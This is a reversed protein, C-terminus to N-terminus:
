RSWVKDGCISCPTYGKAKGLPITYVTRKLSSCDAKGHYRSGDESLFVAGGDKPHCRECPDYKGGASNRIGKVEESSIMRVPVRLYTCDWSLHYKKGTRTVYVCVEELPQQAIQENGSFGIWAHSYFEDELLVKGIPIWHVFPKLGYCVKLRILGNTEVSSLDQVEIGKAGGAVCLYPIQQKNMYAAIGEAADGQVERGENYDKRTFAIENGTQHLAERMNSQVRVAELALLVTIFFFLFVPLVISAELAMNGKLQISSLFFARKKSMNNNKYVVILSPIIIKSKQTKHRIFSLM